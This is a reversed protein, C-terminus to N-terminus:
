RVGSGAPLTVASVGAAVTAVVDLEAPQFDGVHQLVRALREHFQPASKWARVSDTDQWAAYSVFRLPDGVDRGLRLTGAGPMGSAWAAFAAWAQIFEAEKTPNVRWTGTTVLETM